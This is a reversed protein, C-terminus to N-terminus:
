QAGPQSGKSGAAPSETSMMQYHAVQPERELLFRDDEPYYRAAEYDEGAFRIIAEISDWFTLTYYHTVEGEDRRLLHVGRNGPTQRYDPLGTALLYEHYREAEARRVRGHWIRAIM